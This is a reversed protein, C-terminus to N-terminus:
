FDSSTRRKPKLSVSVFHLVFCLFYIPRGTSSLVLRKHKLGRFSDIEKKL